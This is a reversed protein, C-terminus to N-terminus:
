NTENIMVVMLTKMVKWPLNATVLLLSKWTDINAAMNGKSLGINPSIEM